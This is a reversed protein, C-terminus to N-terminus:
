CTYFLLLWHATYQKHTMPCACDRSQGQEGVIRTRVLDSKNAVLVVAANLCMQRLDCLIDLAKVYSRRDNIAFVIVYCSAEHERWADSKQKM